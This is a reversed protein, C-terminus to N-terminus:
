NFNRFKIFINMEKTKSWFYRKQFHQDWHEFNYLMENLNNFKITAVNQKPLNNLNRSFEEARCLAKNLKLIINCRSCVKLKVDTM